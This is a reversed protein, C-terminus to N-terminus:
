MLERMKLSDEPIQLLLEDLDVGKEQSFGIVRDSYGVVGGMLQLSPILGQNWLLNQVQGRPM